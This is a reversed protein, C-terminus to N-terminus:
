VGTPNTRLDRVEHRRVLVRGDQVRVEFQPQPRTAPGSAVSGDDLSFASDHWPCVICGDRVEGEHLPAGRHTCRDAFAVIGEGRRALLVPIGQADVVQAGGDAVDSEACVDVWDGPFQQFATTDVGVGQAYALHGGLWGALGLAGAGLLSATVGARRAGNRRAFWSYGYASLAVYNSVAHVFGIRREAGSTSLWDSGGSAAAPVASLLGLGTLTRAASAEGALDLVGASAWAGIPVAVLAPHLPHAIPVGSLTDEIPGPRVVKRILGALVSAPKDLAEATEIREALREAAKWARM